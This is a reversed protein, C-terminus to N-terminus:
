IYIKGIAYLEFCALEQFPALFPERFRQEATTVIRKNDVTGEDMAGVAVPKHKLAINIYRYRSLILIIFYIYIRPIYPFMVPM